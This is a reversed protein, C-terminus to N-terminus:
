INTLLACRFRADAHGQSTVVGTRVSAAQEQRQPQCAARPDRSGSRTLPATAAPRAARGAAAPKTSNRCRGTRRRASANARSPPPLARGRSIGAKTTTRHDRRCRGSSRPVLYPSAAHGGQSPRHLLPPDNTGIQSHGPRFPRFRRGPFPARQGGGATERRHERRIVRHGRVCVGVGRRRGGLLLHSRRELQPARVDVRNATLLRQARSAGVVQDRKRALVTPENV